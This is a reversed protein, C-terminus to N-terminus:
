GRGEVTRRSYEFALSRVFGHAILDRQVEESNEISEAFRKIFERVPRDPIDYCDLRIVVAKGRSDPYKGALHGDVAADVCNYLRDQIRRLQLETEDTGWPGEEVLLLIFAGDSPRETVLDITLRHTTM